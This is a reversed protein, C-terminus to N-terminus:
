FPIIFVKYVTTQVLHLAQNEYSSGSVGAGEAVKKGGVNSEIPEYIPSPRKM